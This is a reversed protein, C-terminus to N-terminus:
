LVEVDCEAFGDDLGCKGYGSNYNVTDYKFKSKDDGCLFVGCVEGEYGYIDDFGILISNSDEDTIKLRLDKVKIKKSSATQKLKEFENKDYFNNCDTLDPGAYDTKGMSAYCNICASQHICNDCMM